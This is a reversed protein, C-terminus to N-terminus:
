PLRGIDTLVRWAPSLIDNKAAWLAASLASSVEALTGAYYYGPGSLDQEIEARTDTIAASSYGQREMVILTVAYAEAEWRLRWRALSRRLAALWLLNSLGLLWWLNGSVAGLAVLTLLSLVALSQPFGYLVLWGLLGARFERQQIAHVTEHSLYPWLAAPNQLLDDPVYVDRVTTGRRMFTNPARALWGLLGAFFNLFRMLRSPQKPLLAAGARFRLSSVVRDLMMQHDAPTM